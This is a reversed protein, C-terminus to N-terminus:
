TWRDTGRAWEGQEISLVVHWPLRVADDLDPRTAGPRDAHVEVWRGPKDSKVEIRSLARVGEDDDSM